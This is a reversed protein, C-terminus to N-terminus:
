PTSPTSTPTLAWGDSLPGKAGTGGFVLLRDRAADYAVSADARGVPGAGPGLKEWTNTRLDLRWADNLFVGMRVGGFVYLLRRSADLAVAARARSLPRPEDTDVSSPDGVTGLEAWTTGDFSWLEASESTATTGGFLLLRGSATDGHVPDYAMAADHRAPPTRAPSLTAFVQGDFSWTHGDTDLVIARQLKPLYAAVCGSGPPPGGQMQTFSSGAVAFVMAAPSVNGHDDHGGVFLIENSTPLFAACHGTRATPLASTVRVETWKDDPLSFSWVQSASLPIGGFGLLTRADDPQVLTLGAQGGILPTGPGHLWRMAPSPVGHDPDSATARISVRCGSALLGVALAACTWSSHRPM